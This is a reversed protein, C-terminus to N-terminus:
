FVILSLCYISGLAMSMLSLAIGGVRGLVTKKTFALAYGHALRGVLFALSLVAIVFINGNQLESLGILIVFLPAYETLNAQARVRRTLTQDDGQGLSTKTTKRTKIVAWSLILLWFSLSVALYTTVPLTLEVVANEKKSRPLRAIALKQGDGHLFTSPLLWYYAVLLGDGRLWGALM